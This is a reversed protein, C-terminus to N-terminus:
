RLKALKELNSFREGIFGSIKTLFDRNTTSFNCKIQHSMKNQAVRYLEDRFAVTLSNDFDPWM